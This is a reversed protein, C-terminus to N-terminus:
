TIVLLVTAPTVHFQGTVWGAFLLYVWANPEQMPM